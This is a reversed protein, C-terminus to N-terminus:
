NKYTNNKKDAKVEPIKSFDASCHGCGGCSSKGNGTKSNQFLMKGLYFVALAFLLFILVVQIDM